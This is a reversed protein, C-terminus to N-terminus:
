DLRKFIGVNAALSGETNAVRAEIMCVSSPKATKYGSIVEQEEMRSEWTERWARKWALQQTEEMM